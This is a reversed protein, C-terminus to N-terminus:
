CFKLSKCNHQHSPVYLSSFPTQLRKHNISMIKNIGQTTITSKLQLLREQFFFVKLNTGQNTQEIQIDTDEIEIQKITPNIFTLRVARKPQHTNEILTGLHMLVERKQSKSIFPKNPHPSFSQRLIGVLHISFHPSSYPYPIVVEERTTIRWQTQTQVSFVINSFIM